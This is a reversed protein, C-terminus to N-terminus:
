SKQHSSKNGEKNRERLATLVDYPVFLKGYGVGLDLGPTNAGHFDSGGSICLNYKQALVRIQREENPKYTSYIAEIGLLVTETLLGTLTDLRADSMHYLIPHALVPIGKAALILEVAQVPTVKERPVFCPCHDGVYRDFAEKLSKVYGHEFLFRAYHARTIVADPFAELLAEYTIDIGTERLRKCMKRNRNTRSDIFSQLKTSFEPQRYDIDLGVIHIDQGQYETSFEIGPIVEPVKAAEEPPLTRRLTEAYSLLEDLGEVTDHDTLAFAALGKEMAYDLLESPSFTGDSRNSHVHLDIPQM